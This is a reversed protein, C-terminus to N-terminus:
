HNVKLDWLPALRPDRKTTSCGCSTQNRNAGCLPCLGLCNDRCLPRTPLALLIQERVLPSLDVEEGQYFSLDLDEEELETEDKHERHPVLVFRFPRQVALTFEELCRACHATMAGSLTGAFFLEQKARYYELRVHMAAPCEYDRGAGRQLLANLGATPEEYALEGPDAGIDRISIKV